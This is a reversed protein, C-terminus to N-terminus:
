STVDGPESTAGDVDDITGTAWSVVVVTQTAPNLRIYAGANGMRFRYLSALFSAPGSAAHGGM